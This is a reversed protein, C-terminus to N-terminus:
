TAGIIVGLWNELLKSKLHPHVPYACSTAALFIDTNAKMAKESTLQQAQGNAKIWLEILESALHPCANLFSGAPIKPSQWYSHCAHKLHQKMLSLPDSAVRFNTLEAVVFACVPNRDQQTCLNEAWYLRCADRGADTLSRFM